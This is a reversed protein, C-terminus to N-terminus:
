KRRLVWLGAGALVGGLLLLGARSATPIAEPPVGPGGGAFNVPATASLDYYVGKIQFSFKNGTIIGSGSYSPFDNCCTSYATLTYNAQTPYTHAFSGRFLQASRSGGNETQFTGSSVFPMGTLRGSIGNAVLTSGDGYDIAPFAQYYTSLPVGLWATPYPYQIPLFETIDFTAQLSNPDAVVNSVKLGVAPFGCCEPLRGGGKLSKGGHPPPAAPQGVNAGGAARTHKLQAAKLHSHNQAAFAATAVAAGVVVVALVTRVM